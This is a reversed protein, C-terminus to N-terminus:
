DMPVSASSCSVVSSPVIKWSATVGQSPVFQTGTGFGGREEGLGRLLVISRSWPAYRGRQSYSDTTQRWASITLAPREGFKSGYLTPSTLNPYLETFTESLTTEVPAFDVGTFGNDRIM